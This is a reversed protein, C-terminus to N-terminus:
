LCKTKGKVFNRYQYHYYHISYDHDDYKTGFSYAIKTERNKDLKYELEILVKILKMLIKRM